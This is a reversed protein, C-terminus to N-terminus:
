TGMMTCDGISRPKGFGASSSGADRVVDFLLHKIEQEKSDWLTYQTPPLNDHILASITPSFTKAQDSGLWILYWDPSQHPEASARGATLEAEGLPRAGGQPRSPRENSETSFKLSRATKSSLAPSEGPAPELEADPQMAARFETSSLMLIQVRNGNAAVRIVLTPTLQINPNPKPGFKLHCPQSTTWYDLALNLQVNFRTSSVLSKSLNVQPNHTLGLVKCNFSNTFGLDGLDGLDLGPTLSAEFPWLKPRGRVM